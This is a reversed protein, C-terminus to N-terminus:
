RKARKWDDWRSYVTVAISAVILAVFLWKATELYPTLQSVQDQANSLTEVLGSGAVGASAAVQAGMTRSKILPKRTDEGRIVELEKELDDRIRERITRGAVICGHSATKDKNDGHIRFASRGHASHGVPTLAFVIPGLKPHKAVPPQSIAYRGAPIPGINPEAEMDPNNKGIGFGSYGIGEFKGDLTIEGTSQCYTLM